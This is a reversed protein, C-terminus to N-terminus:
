GARSTWSIANSVLTRFNRDSYATPGDGPQLYVVRSRDVQRTWGVLDSGTPHTWGTRDNMRGRIALDPSFFHDPATDHTTRLLPTVSPEEVPYCYLEDTLDFSPAVGACVPHEPAVVEVTHTVDLLYGSPPHPRGGFSGSRYFFRGGILEGYAPWSPWGAIAHHLFVLGTGEETLRRITSREEDTPDVVHLPDAPDGTFRFGPMDYFVVVEHGTTPARRGTWTIGALSDFLAFFPDAEFPHGGTVVLVDIAM